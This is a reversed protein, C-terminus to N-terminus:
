WDRAARRRLLVIGAVLLALTLSAGIVTLVTGGGISWRRATSGTVTVLEGEGDLRSLERPGRLYDEPALLTNERRFEDLEGGYDRGTRDFVRAPGGPARAVHLALVEIAGDARRILLHRQFIETRGSERMAASAAESPACDADDQCRRHAFLANQLQQPSFHAAFNAMRDEPTRSHERYRALPDDRVEAARVYEVLLNPVPGPPPEPPGCAGLMGLLPVLLAWRARM